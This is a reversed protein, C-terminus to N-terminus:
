NRLLHPPSSCGQRPAPLCWVGHEWGGEKGFTLSGCQTFLVPRLHGLAPSPPSAFLFSALFWIFFRRRAPLLGEPCLCTRGLRSPSYGVLSRQGHSKQPLLVPTPQWKRRWPREDSAGLFVTQFSGWPLLRGPQADWGGAPGSTGTLNQAPDAAAVEGGWSKLQGLGGAETHQGGAREVGEEARLWGASLALNLDATLWRSCAPWTTLRSFIMRQLWESRAAPNIQNHFHPPPGGAQRYPTHPQCSALGTKEGTELEARPRTGLPTLDPERPSGLVPLFARWM